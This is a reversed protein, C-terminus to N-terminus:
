QVYMGDEPLLDGSWRFWLFRKVGAMAMHLLMEQYLLSHAMMSTHSPYWTANAPEIWPSVPIGNGGKVMSRVARTNYLLRGYPSNTRSVSYTPASITLLPQATANGDGCYLGISSHTGIHVGSGIPPMVYSYISGTWYSPSSDYHSQDFNSMEVDPFHKAIPEYLTENIMRAVRQAMVANWVYMYPLTTDCTCVGSVISGPDCGESNCCATDAAKTMNDFSVGYESGLANLDALLGAWRPDAQWPAFLKANDNGKGFVHGFGFILAEIDLLVVDVEGGAAKYAGFWADMRKGVVRQWEDAFPMIGGNPGIDWAATKDLKGNEIRAAYLDIPAISRQGKAMTKLAMAITAPPTACILPFDTTNCHNPDTGNLPWVAHPGSGRMQWHEVEAGAFSNSLQLCPCVHGDLTSNRCANNVCPLRASVISHFALPTPALSVSALMGAVMWQMPRQMEPM